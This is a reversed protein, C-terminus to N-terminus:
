TEMSVYMNLVMTLGRCTENTGTKAFTPNKVATQPKIQIWNEIKWLSTLSQNRVVYSLESEKMRERPPLFDAGM